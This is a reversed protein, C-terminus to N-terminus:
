MGSADLGRLRAFIRLNSVVVVFIKLSSPMSTGYIKYTIQFIEM